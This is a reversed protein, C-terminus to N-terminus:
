YLPFTADVDQSWATLGGMVDVLEVQPAQPQTSLHRSLARAALLSDNGRRCVLYIPSSDTSPVSSSHSPSVLDLASSPDRLLSSFPVNISGDLHCIGFEAKSRVDLIRAGSGLSAALEGVRVRREGERKLSSSGVGPIECLPDEWGEWRGEPHCLFTAWRSSPTSLTSPDGLSPFTGCAPCSPKQARVKITRLPSPSMPSLLHLTPKAVGLLVRMAEAGMQVGVQGCLIGLVGEDSCAGTGQLALKEARLDEQLLREAPSLETSPPTPSPASPPFICAYCPGHTPPTSSESDVPASGSSTSPPSPLPLGFVGVTGETRVAGGSVLPIGYAVAYANLFHRTAPNDTCDLILSFSPELISSPTTASHFLSPTFPLAHANIKVDSNLKELGLKASEAKNIGVREESHLVQRHLNSLEVSDHDLVTIEGVGAAALYLLVPCGLGGAGIVLIHSRKLKLQGELGLSPLIMQRGYRKYERLSLPHQQQPVAAAAPPQPSPSPDLAPPLSALEKELCQLRARTDELDALVEARPRPITSTM